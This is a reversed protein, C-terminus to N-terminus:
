PNNYFYAYLGGQTYYTTSSRVVTHGDYNRWRVTLTLQVVQGSRQALVTLARSLTFRGAVAPNRTFSADIVPQYAADSASVWPLLREKEIECQLINGAIVLNRATDLEAFVRQMVTISTTLVLALMAVAMAVELITFGSRGRTRRVGLSPLFTRM